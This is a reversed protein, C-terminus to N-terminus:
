ACTIVSLSPFATTPNRVDDAVAAFCNETRAWFGCYGPSDTYRFRSSGACFTVGVAAAAAGCGAVVASVRNGDSGGISAGRGAGSTGTRGGRVDATGTGVVRRCVGTSSGRIRAAAAAPSEMM